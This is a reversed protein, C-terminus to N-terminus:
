SCGSNNFVIIPRLVLNNTGVFHMLTNLKLQRDNQGIPNDDASWTKGTLIAGDFHQRTLKGLVFWRLVHTKQMNDDIVCWNQLLVTYVTACCTLSSHQADPNPWFPARPLALTHDAFIVVVSSDGGIPPSFLVSEVMAESTGRYVWYNIQPMKNYRSIKVLDLDM